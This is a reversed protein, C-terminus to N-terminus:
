VYQINPSAITPDPYPIYANSSQKGLNEWAPLGSAAAMYSNARKSCLPQLAWM